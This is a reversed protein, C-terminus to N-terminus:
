PDLNQDSDEDVGMSQMHYCLHEPSGACERLSAQVNAARQHWLYWIRMSLGIISAISM